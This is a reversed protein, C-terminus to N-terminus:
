AAVMLQYYDVGPDDYQYRLSNHTKKKLGHFLKYRLHSQPEQEGSRRPYEMHIHSLVGEWETILAQVKGGKGQQLKYFAQM